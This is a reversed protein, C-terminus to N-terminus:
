NNLFSPFKKYILITLKLILIWSPVQSSLFYFLIGLNSCMLLLYWIGANSFLTGLFVEFSDNLFPHPLIKHLCKSTIEKYNVPLLFIFVVCDKNSKSCLDHAFVHMIRYKLIAASKLGKRQFISVGDQMNEHILNESFVLFGTKLYYM